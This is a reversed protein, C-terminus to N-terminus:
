QYLMFTMMYKDKKKQIFSYDSKLKYIKIESTYIIMLM